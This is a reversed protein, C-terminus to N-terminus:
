RTALTEQSCPPSDPGAGNNSHELDFERPREEETVVEKPLLTRFLATELLSLRGCLRTAPYTTAATALTPVRRPRSNTARSTVRVRRVTKVNRRRVDIASRRTVIFPCRHALPVFRRATACTKSCVDRPPCPCNSPLVPSRASQELPFLLAPPTASPTSLGLWLRGICGDLM